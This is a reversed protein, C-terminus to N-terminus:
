WGALSAECSEVALKVVGLSYLLVWPMPCLLDRKGTLQSRTNYMIYAIWRSCTSVLLLASWLKAYHCLLRRPRPAYIAGSSSQGQSGERWATRYVPSHKWKQASSWQPLWSRNTQYPAGTPLRRIALPGQALLPSRGSFPCTDCCFPPSQPIGCLKFAPNTTVSHECYTRHMWWPM